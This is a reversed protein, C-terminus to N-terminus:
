KAVVSITQEDFLPTDQGLRVLLIKRAAPHAEFYQIGDPQDGLPGCAPEPVEDPNRKGALEVNYEEDPSFTYREIGDARAQGILPAVVCRSSIAAPTGAAFIRTLSDAVEEGEKMEFVDILPDPKGGDSYRIALSTGQEVFDIRRSGFDCRQVWAAIGLKASSFKEWSCGKEAPRSPAAIPEASLPIALAVVLLVIKRM